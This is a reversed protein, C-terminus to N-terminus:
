WEERYDVQKAANVYPVDRILLYNSKGISIDLGDSRLQSLDANLSVLKQSM